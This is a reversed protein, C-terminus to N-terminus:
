VDVGADPSSMSSSGRDCFRGASDLSIYQICCDVGCQLSKVKIDILDLLAKLKRKKLTVLHVKILIVQVM